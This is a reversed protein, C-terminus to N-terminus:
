EQPAAALVSRAYNISIMNEDGDFVGYQNEVNEELVSLADKLAETLREIRDKLKTIERIASLYAADREDEKPFLEVINLEEKSNCIITRGDMGSEERVQGRQALLAKAFRLMEDQTVQYVTEGVKLFADPDTEIEDEFAEIIAADTPMIGGGRQRDAQLSARLREAKFLTYYLHYAVQEMPEESDEGGHQEIFDIGGTYSLAVNAAELNGDLLGLLDSRSVLVDEDSVERAPSQEAHLLLERFEDLMAVSLAIAYDDDRLRDDLRNRLELVKQATYPPGPITVDEDRVERPALLTDIADRMRRLYESPMHVHGMPVNGWEDLLNRVQELTMAKTSDM